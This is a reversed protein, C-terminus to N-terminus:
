HNSCPEYPGAPNFFDRRKVRARADRYAAWLKGNQSNDLTRVQSGLTLLVADLLENAKQTNTIDEVRAISELINNM